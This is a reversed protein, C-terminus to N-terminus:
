CSDQLIKCGRDPTILKVVKVINKKFVNVEKVINEIDNGYNKYIVKSKQWWHLYMIFM